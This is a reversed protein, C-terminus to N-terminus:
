IVYINNIGDSYIKEYGAEKFYDNIFDVNLRFDPNDHHEHAEIIVMTPLWKSIDFGELVQKEHFEVDIVLLDIEGPGISERSLITDLTNCKVILEDKVPLVDKNATFIDAGKYLTLWGNYNSVAQEIVTVDNNVHNAKCAEAMHKIPEIYIGCWGANALEYTNSYSKGDHAGVEIFHRDKQEPFYKDYIDGLGAIQCDSAVKM